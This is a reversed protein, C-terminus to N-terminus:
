LNMRLKLSGQHNMFKKAFTNKYGASFQIWHSKSTVGLGLNYETDKDGSGMTSDSNTLVISKLWRAKIKPKNQTFTHDISGFIEPIVQMGDLYIDDKSFKIGPSVIGKNIGTKKAYSFNMIDAGTEDYADEDFSSYRVGLSPVLSSGIQEISYKYGINTDIVYVHSNYKGSAALTIPDSSPATIIKLKKDHVKTYGYLLTGGITWSEFGHYASYVSFMFSEADSKDGERYDSSRMFSKSYTFAAGALIDSELLVDGGLSFGAMTTKYGYLEEEGTKIAKGGIASLWVGSEKYSDDGSSVGSLDTTIRKGIATLTSASVHENASAGSVNAPIANQIAEM